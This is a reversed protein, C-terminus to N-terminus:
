VEAALDCAELGGVWGVCLHVLEALAGRLRVADGEEDGGHRLEPPQARPREDGRVEQHAATSIATKSGHRGRACCGVGYREGLWLFNEVVAENGALDGVLDAEAHVDIDRGCLQGWGGLGCTRTDDNSHTDRM